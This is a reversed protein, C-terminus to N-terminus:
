KPFSCYFISGQGPVSEVWIKGGHREMIKKCLALGIGTGPYELRTHLRQFIVFIRDFFEEAIGIGNDRFTLTWSAADDRAGVHIRPAEEGRFKIANAILNQMLMGLQMPDAKLAPLPDNTIVANSERIATFLNNLTEELVRGADSTQFETARGGVRSFALLGEILVQMRQSGEVAHRILEDARGDLKGQYRRQLVGVCGAVARLPEQLDHSAVYAFHELDKNSRALDETQQRLTEEVRKRETIDRAVKAAGIIQGMPDKIPSVSVSVHILSGDKRQRVTEFHEVREGRSIRNLILEEEVHREPPILKKVSHGIMEAASYGFIREAGQNWSTVVGDLDKGVIADTSSEVIAAIQAAHM